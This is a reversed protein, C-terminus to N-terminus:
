QDFRLKSRQGPKWRELAEPVAPMTRKPWYEPMFEEWGLNPNKTCRVFLRSGKIAMAVCYNDQICTVIDGLRGEKVKNPWDPDALAQRALSIMHTQGNKVAKWAAEPGQLGATIIPITLAESLTKGQMELLVAMDAEHESHQFNDHGYGLSLHIADAGAEELWRCIQLTEDPRDAPNQEKGSMRVVIPVADRFNAKLMSTLELLYRARNRLSGGYQDGRKNSEPSLFQHLLCGHSAHIEVGDFGALIALESAKVFSVEDRCIEEITMERPVNMVKGPPWDFVYYDCFGKQLKALNARFTKTDLGVASAGKAGKYQAGRGYGVSLQAFIKTNTGMSHISETFRSYQSLNDTGEYLGPALGVLEQHSEPNTMISGTTLLGFGGLARANFHCTYQNTPGEHDGMWNMAAMAIRNKIEVPGIRLPAFLEEFAM